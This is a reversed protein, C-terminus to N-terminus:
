KKSEWSLIGWKIFSTDRKFNYTKDFYKKLDIKESESQDKLSMQVKEFFIDGTQALFRKNENHIFDIKACVGMSKLINILHVNDIRPTIHRKLQDLIEEEKFHGRISLNMYIRNRECGYVKRLASKVNEIEQMQSSVIIDFQHLHCWKDNWDNNITTINNLNKLNCNNVFHEITGFHYEDNAYIHKFKPAIKTDMLVFDLLTKADLINVKHIFEETNNKDPIKNECSDAKSKKENKLLDILKESKLIELNTKAIGM